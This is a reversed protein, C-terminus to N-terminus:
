TLLVSGAAPLRPKPLPRRASFVQWPPAEETPKWPKLGFPFFGPPPFSNTLFSPELETPFVLQEIIIMAYVSQYFTDPFSSRIRQDDSKFLFLPFKLDFTFLFLEYIGLM